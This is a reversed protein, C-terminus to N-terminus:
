EERVKGEAILSNVAMRAKTGSIGLEEAIESTSMMGRQYLLSLVRYKLGNGTIDEASRKGYETLNVVVDAM